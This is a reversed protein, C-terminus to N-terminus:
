MTFCSPEWWGYDRPVFITLHYFLISFLKLFSFQFYFFNLKLVATDVGACRFVQQTSNLKRDIYFYFTFLYDIM